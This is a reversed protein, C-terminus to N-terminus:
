RSPVSALINRVADVAIRLQTAYPGEGIAGNEFAEDIAFLLVRVLATSRDDVILTENNRELALGYTIVGMVAGITYALRNDVTSGGTLPYLARLESYIRTLHERAADNSLIM